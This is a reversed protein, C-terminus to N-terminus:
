GRWPGMMYADGASSGKIIVLDEFVKVRSIAEWCSCEEGGVFGGLGAERGADEREEQGVGDDVGEGGRGTFQDGAQDERGGLDELLISLHHM